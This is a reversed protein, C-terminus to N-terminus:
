PFTISWSDIFGTDGSAGDVVKLKWTGSSEVGAANVSYTKLVNDSSNNNAFDELVASAGNPAVISIVLDGVYTHKIDVDVSITGSDGTRSVALNSTATSNDFINVNNSNTFTAGGGGGAATYSGTLSVGSFASFGNIMVHYTGGTSTGTCSETNGNKYPRCDYSSLTPASGFKVYLDADGTGGSMAFNIASAGAPVDLTFTLQANKAGSLGTVPVGNTLVNNSPPPPPPPTGGSFNTNLLLNPSGKPDSIKNVSAANKLAIAVQAPTDSPHGQLYVAAAGAVHPSAMSTGSITNTGGNNWTSLINSGPAFIDICSGWSSFSSRADTITSSAVTIAAPVRNPSGTCADTNSNGAAVAFTVGANIANNVASDLATSSGGGLSMNAVAPLVANQAVWDIGSIVASNSGSGACDLVRVATISVNKAVGYSASGITGSVHTGHGNCDNAVADNDIFDWGNVARGGFQSHSILAGTDIVYAHVGSGDDTYTYSGSLPLNVQDIRDIGWTAGSQTTNAHMMQDQEILEIRPDQRLADVQKADMKLVFGNLAHSYQTTVQGRVNYAIDYAASSVMQERDVASMTSMGPQSKLVVIYQNAIARSSFAPKFQALSQESVISASKGAIENAFAIQSVSSVCLAVASACLAKKYPFRM